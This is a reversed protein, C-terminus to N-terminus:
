VSPEIKVDWAPEDGQVEPAQNLTWTSTLTERAIWPMHANLADLTVQNAAWVGTDIHQTYHLGQQKRRDQIDRIIDRAIGELLLDRTVELSLVVVLNGQAAVGESERTPLYELEYDERALTAEGVHATGDPLIEFKGERAAALVGPFAKGLRPGLAKGDPKCRVSVHESPDAMFHLEKVNLENKIEGQFESLLAADVGAIWLSQLPQRVKLKHRERVQRGLNAIARVQDTRHELTSDIHEPHAEPWDSLHVSQGGCLGRYLTEAVFPAFPAVVQTFERLVLYLVDYAARNEPKDLEEWFRRRSQRIYWNNLSEIFERIAEYGAVIDYSQAVRGVNQKLTELKSLIYRDLRTAHNLDPPGPEYGAINAYTCFFHYANWLPILYARLAEEVDKEDFRLNGGRVVSSSLLCIRMADSGEREVVEMPDPYNKLRKSMKRGDSAQVVGHCICSQFPPKDFLAAALVVMTYFWGRTQAIYEVIFDAPFNQEFWAKNEFPYHVQAYPMAGSEFWCDLVDPVRRYTGGAPSSFTVEDIAPRHLDTVPKGWKKSLEALSSPVYVEGTKDCRWVPIPAGWYRTRSINWDHANELWKGFRGDRIHEPIWNIKQNAALMSEKIKEVNLFWTSISRYILPSDDRWCHPYNHDVTEQKILSGREKLHKIIHPNADHVMQGAFDCVEATFCGASDVPNPGPVSHLAGLKFDDEGFAPAIHVIGTGDETSVFDALLVQFANPTNAFYPFLPEYKMGELAAGPVKEICIAKDLQKKYAHRRASAIYYDEGDLRLREYEIEAGVALAVNSPLTWPTTTWALFYTPVEGDKVKFRLTVSPDQRPRFSDDLRAEFNSLPTQCRYCYAVVREGEYILGKHWLDHFVRMISEMYTLDMTKYDRSFDVWRGLRTIIREWEQTYRMVAEACRANFKDVGYDEIARKGSIELEKEMENEIPLGHCDWGFRRDVARGMMTFLRPITDKIYSTLIHGYHPLGTAFPPGDYFVYDRAGAEQRQRISRMFVDHERWYRLVEEEMKPFDVQPSTVPFHEKAM